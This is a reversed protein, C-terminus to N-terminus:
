VYIVINIRSNVNKQFIVLKKKLYGIKNVM